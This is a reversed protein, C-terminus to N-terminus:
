EGQTTTAGSNAQIKFEIRRNQADAGSGQALPQESGYGTATILNEGIGRDILGQRIRDAREQSMTKNVGADGNNDTHGGIAIILGSCPKLAEAVEDLIQNSVPSVYASGSRFTIKKSEVIDNVGEQCKAIQEQTAASLSESGGTANADSIAAPEDGRWKAASVGPIAMVATLASRKTDDDVDGDLTAKRSLPDRAFTVKVSDMGQATLETQAKSELKSVLEDSTAFHGVVALLATAAAGTLIKGVVEM